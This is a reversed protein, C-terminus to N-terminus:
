DASAASSDPSPSAPSTPTPPSPTCPGSTPTSPTASSTSSPRAKRSPCPLDGLLRRVSTVSWPEAVVPAPLRGPLLAAAAQISRGERLLDLFPAVAEPPVDAAAAAEEHPRGDALHRQLDALAALKVRGANKPRVGLARFVEITSRISHGEDKLRRALVAAQADGHDTEVALGDPATRQGYRLQGVRQHASRKRDLIERTRERIRLLEAYAMLDIIGRFIMGSATPDGSGEGQTSWVEGGKAEIARNITGRTFEDARFLRDRRLVILKSGPSLDDIAAKLGPRADLDADGSVGEDARVARVAWGQRAAFDRCAAAQNDLSLSARDRDEKSKRGYAIADTSMPKVRFDHTPAPNATDGPVSPPPTRPCRPSAAPATDTPVTAPRANTTTAGRGPNRGEPRQPAFGGIYDASVARPNSSDM